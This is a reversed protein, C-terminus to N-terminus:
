EQRFDGSLTSNLRLDSYLLDKTSSRQALTSWRFFELWRCRQNAVASMSMSGRRRLGISRAGTSLPEPRIPKMVRSAFHAPARLAVIQAMCIASFAATASGGGVQETM